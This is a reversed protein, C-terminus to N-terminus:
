GFGNTKELKVEIMQDFAALVTMFQNGLSNIAMLGLEWFSSCFTIFFRCFNDVKATKLCKKM